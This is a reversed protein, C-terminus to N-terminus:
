MAYKLLYINCTISNYIVECYNNWIAYEYWQARDWKSETTKDVDGAVVDVLSLYKGIYKLILYWAMTHNDM